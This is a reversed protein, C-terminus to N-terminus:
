WPMPLLRQDPLKSALEGFGEPGPGFRLEGALYAVEGPMPFWRAPHNGHVPWPQPLDAYAIDAASSDRYVRGSAFSAAAPVTIMAAGAFGGGTRTRPHYDLGDLHVASGRRRCRAIRLRPPLSLAASRFRQQSFFEM